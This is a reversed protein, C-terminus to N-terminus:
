KSPVIPFRNIEAVCYLWRLNGYQITTKNKVQWLKEAKEWYGHNISLLWFAALPFTEISTSSLNNTDKKWAKFADKIKPSVIRHSDQLWPINGRKIDIISESIITQITKPWIRSFKLLHGCFSLGLKNIDTGAKEDLYMLLSVIFDFSVQEAILSHTWGCDEFLRVYEYYIQEPTEPEEGLEAHILMADIKVESLGKRLKDIPADPPIILVYEPYNDVQLIRTRLGTSSNSPKTAIILEFGTTNASANIYSLVTTLVDPTGIQYQFGCTDCTFLLQEVKEKVPPSIQNGCSPCYFPSVDLIARM